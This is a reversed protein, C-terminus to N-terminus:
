RLFLICRDLLLFRGKMILLKISQLRIILNLRLMLVVLLLKADSARVHEFECITIDNTLQLLKEIM